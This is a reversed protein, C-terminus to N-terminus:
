VTENRGPGRVVLGVGGAKPQMREKDKLVIDGLGFNSPDKAILDRVWAEDFAEHDKLSIRVGKAYQLSM